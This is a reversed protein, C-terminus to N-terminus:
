LITIAVLILLKEFHKFIDNCINYKMPKKSNRYYTKNLKKNITKISREFSAIISDDFKQQFEDFRFYYSVHKKKRKRRKRKANFM